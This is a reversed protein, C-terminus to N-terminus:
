SVGKVAYQQVLNMQYAPRMIWDENPLDIHECHPDPLLSMLQGDWGDPLNITLNGPYITWIAQEDPIWQPDEPTHDEGFAQGVIMWAAYGDNEILESCLTPVVAECQMEPKGTKISPLIKFGDRKIGQMIHDYRVYPYKFEMPDNLIQWRRLLQKLTWMSQKAEPFVEELESAKVALYTCDPLMADNLQESQRRSNVEQWPLKAIGELTSIYRRGYAGDDPDEDEISAQGWTSGAKREEAIHLAHKPNTRVTSQMALQAFSSAWTGPLDGLTLRRM